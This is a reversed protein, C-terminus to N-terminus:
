GHYKEKGELFFVYGDKDVQKLNEIKGLKLRIVDAILKEISLYVKMDVVKTETNKMTLLTYNM